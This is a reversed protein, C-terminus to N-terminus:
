RTSFVFRWPNNVTSVSSDQTTFTNCVKVMDRHLCDALNCDGATLPHRTPDQAICIWGLLCAWPRLDRMTCTGGPLLLWTTRNAFVVVATNRFTYCLRYVQSRYLLLCVHVQLFLGDVPLGADCIRYKICAYRTSSLLM